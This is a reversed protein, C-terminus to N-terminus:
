EGSEVPVNMVVYEQGEAISVRRENTRSIQDNLEVMKPNVRTLAAIRM